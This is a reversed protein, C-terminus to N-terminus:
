FLDSSSSTLTIEKGPVQQWYATVKRTDRRIGRRPTTIQRMALLLYREPLYPARDPKPAKRTIAPITPVNWPRGGTERAAPSKTICSEKTCKPLAMTQACAVCGV